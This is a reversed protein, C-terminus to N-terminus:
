RIGVSMTKYTVNTHGNQNFAVGNYSSGNDGDTRFYPSSVDGCWNNCQKHCGTYGSMMLGVWMWSNDCVNLQYNWGTNVNGHGTFLTGATAGSTNYGLSALTMANGSQATFYANQGTDHNIYIVDTFSINRCDARYGDTGYNLTHTTETKLHVMDNRETYCMSWGGGQDTMNCDIEFAGTGLPDIWYTTNGRDGNNQLIDLCSLGPECSDGYICGNEVDITTSISSSFSNGDTATVTCTWTGETTPTLASLTDSSDTTPTGGGGILIGNPDTWDFIYEITDGDIDVSLQSVSCILDDEEAAPPNNPTSTIQISPTTPATNQIMVAASNQTSSGHGDNSDISCYLLDGQTVLSQLNIPNGTTIYANNAFWSVTHQLSEDDPDTATYQCTAASNSYLPPTDIYVNNIIPLRNDVTLSSDLSASAGDSDTVTATCTVTDGPLVTYNALSISTANVTQGDVTWTYTATVTEDPDSATAMCTLSSDNYINGNPTITISDVTPNSNGITVSSQAYPGNIIGDNPTVQVTWTDNKSTQSANISSTTAGSVPNGNQLWQYTYSPAMGEPDVSPTLINVTLNNTTTPVSPTIAIVPASPLANVSFSVQASDSFGHSDTVVVQLIYAGYELSADSFQAIGSSNASINAYAQGNLSWDLLLDNAADENDSVQVEMQVAQGESIVLSNQPSLISISPPTNVTYLITDTCTAGLDDTVRMEINHTNVSLDRYSFTVLGSSNPTSTGLLGDKDSHWEVLLANNAIDIDEALGEFLVAANEAGVDLNTPHQISCSPPSNVPGVSLTINDSSQKGTQDEVTVRIYHEGESLSIAGDVQGNNNPRDPLNLDGDVSSNWTVRLDEPRDEADDVEVEFTILRGTYFIDNSQPALITITPNETEQVSLILSDMAGANLPDRAEVRLTDADLSPFFDCSSGGAEDPTSWPCIEVDGYFWAVQLEAAEHNSDSVQAHAALAYGELVQAGDQPTMIIIDPAANVTTITKETRCAALLPLTWVWNWNM